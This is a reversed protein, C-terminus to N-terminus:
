IQLNSSYWCIPTAKAYQSMVGGFGGALFKSYPNIKKPDEHGELHALVRKAAEFSGFRIASEPAVKVVNLGNGPCILDIVSGFNNL